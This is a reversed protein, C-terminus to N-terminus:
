EYQQGLAYRTGGAICSLRCASSDLSGPCHRLTRPIQRRLQEPLGEHGRAERLSEGAWRLARTREGPQTM